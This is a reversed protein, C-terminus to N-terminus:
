PPAVAVGARITADGPILKVTFADNGSFRPDPTYDIRTDDGVSHILVKGHMPYRKVASVGSASAAGSAGPAGSSNDSGPGATGCGVLALVATLILTQTVLTLTKM